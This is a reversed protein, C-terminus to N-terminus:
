GVEFRPGRSLTFINWPFDGSALCVRFTLAMNNSQEVSLHTPAVTGDFGIPTTLDHLWDRDGENKPKLEKWFREYEPRVLLRLIGALFRIPHELMWKIQEHYDTKNYHEGSEREGLFRKQEEETWAKTDIVSRRLGAYDSEFEGSLFRRHALVFGLDGHLFQRQGKVFDEKRLNNM